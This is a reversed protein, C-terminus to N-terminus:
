ELELLRRRRPSDKLDLVRRRNSSPRSPSSAPPPAKLEMLRLRRKSPRTM